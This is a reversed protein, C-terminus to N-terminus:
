HSELFMELLIPDDNESSQIALVYIEVSLHFGFFSNVQHIVVYLSMVVHYVTKRTRLRSIYAFATIFSTSTAHRMLASLRTAVALRNRRTHVRFFSDRPLRAVSGKSTARTEFFMLYVLHVALGDAFLNSIAGHTVYEHRFLIVFTEFREALITFLVNFYIM